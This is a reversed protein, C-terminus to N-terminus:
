FLRFGSDVSNWGNDDLFKDKSRRSGTASSPRGFVNFGSEVRNWGKREFWDDSEPVLLSDLFNEDNFLSQLRPGLMGRAVRKRRELQGPSWSLTEADNLIAAIFYIDSKTLFRIVEVRLVLKLVVDVFTNDVAIEGGSAKMTKYWKRAEMYNKSAYPGSLLAALISSYTIITPILTGLPPAFYRRYVDLVRTPKGITVCINLLVNVAVVDPTRIEQFAALAAGTNGVASHFKMLATWVVADGRPLVNRDVMTDVLRLADQTKPYRSKSMYDIVVAILTTPPNCRVDIMRYLIKVAAALRTKRKTEDEPSSSVSTTTTETLLGLVLSGYVKASPIMAMSKMRNFADSAAALDGQRGLTRLLCCFTIENPNVNREIMLEFMDLTEETMGAESYGNLLATYAEVQPHRNVLSTHDVAYYDLTERAFSWDLNLVAAHVITNVTVDDWLKLPSFQMEGALRRVQDLRGLATWGKLMTNYSRLNAAPAAAAAPGGAAAAADTAGGNIGKKMRRFVANAKNIRGCNIYADLLSNMMITDVAINKNVRVEQWVREVQELNGLDGYGRLLISYAIVSIPPANTARDQLTVVREALDMRGATCIADLVKTFEAERVFITNPVRIGTGTVLRQLLRYAEDIMQYQEKRDEKSMTPNDKAYAKVYGTLAGIASLVTKIPVLQYPPTLGFDKTVYTNAIQVGSLIRQADNYPSTFTHSTIMQVAMDISISLERKQDTTLSRQLLQKRGFSLLHMAQGHYDADRAVKLNDRINSAMDELSRQAKKYSQLMHYKSNSSERDSDREQDGGGAADAAPRVTTVASLRQSTEQIRPSQPRGGHNPRKLTHFGEISCLCFAMLALM